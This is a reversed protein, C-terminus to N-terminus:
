LGKSGLAATIESRRQGHEYDFAQVLGNLHSAAALVVLVHFIQHSSGWIDYKGPSWKEPVRAAYIAAGSIYLTGQLLIWDLGISRRLHEIGYLQIGHLVPFVASLGMLVFMLARFPRLAPTRFKPHTSVISTGAALTTIMAWYTKRLEPEDRFAYYLVPVFSGWILFVIGLYDLKNGWVAVEHSHNQITHYTGSMGLCAVAGAFFCGFAWVDETTATAYRPGLTFYLAIGAVAALLAGILHTYINVTENHLYGLSKWSKSYSNSQARYGTQIYHNDQQWPSLEDWVVILKEEVKEEIKKGADAAKSAAEKVADM